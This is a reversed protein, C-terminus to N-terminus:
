SLSILNDSINALWATAIQIDRFSDKSHRRRSTFAISRTADDDLSVFDYARNTDRIGIAFEDILEIIAVARQSHLAILQISRWVFVRSGVGM